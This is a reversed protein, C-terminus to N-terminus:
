YATWVQESCPANLRIGLHAPCSPPTCARMVPACSEYRATSSYVVGPEHDCNTSSLSRRKWKAALVEVRCACTRVFLVLDSVIRAHACSRVRVKPIMAVLCVDNLALLEHAISYPAVEQVFPMPVPFPSTHARPVICSPSASPPAGVPCLPPQSPWRTGRTRGAASVTTEGLARAGRPLSRVCWASPRKSPRSM